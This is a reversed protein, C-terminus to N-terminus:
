LTATIFVSREPEAKISIRCGILKKGDYLKEIAGGCNVRNIGYGSPYAGDYSLVSYKGFPLCAAPTTNGSLGKIPHWTSAPFDPRPLSVEGNGQFPDVFDVCSSNSYPDDKYVAIRNKPDHYFM